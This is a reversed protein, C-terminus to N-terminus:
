EGGEVSGQTSISRSGLIKWVGINHKRDYVRIIEDGPKLVSIDLTELRRVNSVGVAGLLGGVLVGFFNRRKM